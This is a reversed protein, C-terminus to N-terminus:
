GLKSCINIQFLHLGRQQASGLLRHLRRVHGQPDPLQFRLSSLPPVAALLRRVEGNCYDNSQESEDRLGLVILRFVHITCSALVHIPLLGLSLLIHLRM